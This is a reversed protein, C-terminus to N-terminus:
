MLWAAPRFPCSRKNQAWLAAESRHAIYGSGPSSQVRQNDKRIKGSRSRQPPAVRAVRAIDLAIRRAEDRTVRKMVEAVMEM